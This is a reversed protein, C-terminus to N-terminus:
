VNCWARAPTLLNQGRDNGTARVWDDIAEEPLDGIDWHWGPGFSPKPEPRPFRRKIGARVKM